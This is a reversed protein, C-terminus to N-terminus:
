GKGVYLSNLILEAILLVAGFILFHFLSRKVKKLNKEWYAFYLLRLSIFAACFCVLLLYSGFVMQSVGYYMYMNGYMGSRETFTAFCIWGFSLFVFGCLLVALIILLDYFISISQKM